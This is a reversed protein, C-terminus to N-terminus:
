KKIEFYAYYIEKVYNGTERFDMIEKGIRYEGVPLTGYLFNWDEKLHTVDNKRIIYAIEHYAVDKQVPEVDIWEGEIKQELSYWDGTQLDGKSNGGSQEIQLTLGDSTVDTASMQIGWANEQATTKVTFDIILEFAPPLNLLEDKNVKYFTISEFTNRDTIEFVFEQLNSSEGERNERETSDAYMRQSKLKAGVINETPVWQHITVGEPLTIVIEDDASIEFYVDDKQMEDNGVQYRFTKQAGNVDIVNKNSHKELEPETKNCGTFTLIVILLLLKIM